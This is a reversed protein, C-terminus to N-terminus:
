AEMARGARAQRLQGLAAEIAAAATVALACGHGFPCERFACPRCAMPQWLVEHLRADLPRWRAADAGSSVVVSPTGVAAAVHSLGTDNCVVLRAGAVLAGLTWLTTRGALEDAPQRMAARVAAVLPREAETGTLVVRCGRAALADAVAAFREPPWRRSPLQAGPHVCAYPEGRAAAPWARALALRDDDAAPWELHLGRRPCGLRDTLALLREIEHGTRPWPCGPALPPGAAGPEFFGALRAGSRALMPNVIGGSGHLQVLLDFREARLRDFFAPLAAADCDREPLGPYGPFEVFRDVAALRGALARAWPLGILVIEAGPWAGRLARLAPVACLLDGLMLARFVGIRKM